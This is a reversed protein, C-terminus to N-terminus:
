ETSVRPVGIRRKKARNFARIRSNITWECWGTLEMMEKTTHRYRILTDIKVQHRRQEWSYKTFFNIGKTSM